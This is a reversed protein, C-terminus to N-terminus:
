FFTKYFVNKSLIELQFIIQLCFQGYLNHECKNSYFFLHKKQIEVAKLRKKLGLNLYKENVNFM